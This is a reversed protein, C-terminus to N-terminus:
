IESRDFLPLIKELINIVKKITEIDPIGPIFPAGKDNNEEDIQKAATDLADDNLQVESNQQLKTNVSSHLVSNKPHLDTRM